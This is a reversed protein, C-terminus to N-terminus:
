KDALETQLAAALDKLCWAYADLLKQGGEAHRRRAFHFTEPSSVRGKLLAAASNRVVSLQDTEEDTCSPGQNLLEYSKEESGAANQLDQPIKEYEVFYREAYSALLAAVKLQQPPTLEKKLTALAEAKFHKYQVKVNAPKSLYKRMQEMVAKRWVKYTDETMNSETVRESLHKKAQTHDAIDGFWVWRASFWGYTLALHETYFCTELDDREGSSCAGEVRLLSQVLQGVYAEVMPKVAISALLDKLKPLPATPEAKKPVVPAEEDGTLAHDDNDEYNQVEDDAPEAAKFSITLRGGEAKAEVTMLQTGKEAAGTATNDTALSAPSQTDVPAYLNLLREGEEQNVRDCRECGMNLAVVITLAVVALVGLRYQMKGM